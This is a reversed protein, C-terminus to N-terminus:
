AYLREHLRRIMGATAGWIHRPGYQYVYYHRQRGQWERSQVQCNAQDMLFTLPVEFIEEVEGAHRSLSFGERVLGVVPTVQYHTVTLYCDGYGLVDVHARSLGVEEEAERLAADRVTEGADVRGGPFAIQGAHKSLGSHRLTLLVKPEAGVVIPVLVSAQKPSVGAPIMRAKENMDDDSHNWSKAPEALLRTRARGLFDEFDLM